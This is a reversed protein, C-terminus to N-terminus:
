KSSPSRNEAFDVNELLVNSHPLLVSSCWTILNVSCKVEGVATANLRIVTRSTAIYQGTAVLSSAKCIAVATPSTFHETLKIVQHLETNNGCEFTNNFFTSKASFRLGELM